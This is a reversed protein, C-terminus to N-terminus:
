ASLLAMLWVLPPQSWEAGGERRGGRGDGAAVDLAAAVVIEDDAAAPGIPVARLGRLIDETTVETPVLPERDDEEDLRPPAWVGEGGGADLVSAATAAAAAAASAAAADADADAAAAAASL